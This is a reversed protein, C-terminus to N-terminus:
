QEYQEVEKLDEEVFLENIIEEDNIKQILKNELWEIYQAPYFMEDFGTQEEFQIVLDAKTIM